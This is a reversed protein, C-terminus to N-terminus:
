KLNHKYWELARDIGEELSIEPIYGLANKIKSIDAFSNTIEGVRPASYIPDLSSNLKQKIIAYLASVTETAGYAVNYVQNFALRNTSSAALLNAQVVNNVYTFDRKNNGDGFITCVKQHLLHNIFIPIVAAYAGNPNQKPGFVNFYRLGIIEMGYLESYVKAYLENAKKSVAYPSLPNGTVEEKKPLSADDGYVSSSSAYVFRSVKNKRCAELMNIFGDVNTIHTNIPNEISRPVSGLAAQHLVIDCDKTANKCDTLSRIDGQIFEIKNTDIHSQINKIDGTELNDIVRINPHGLSVLTDVLNSGIFGAGGTILIKKTLISEKNVQM